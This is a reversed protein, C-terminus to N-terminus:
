RDDKVAEWYLPLAERAFDENEEAFFRYGEAAAEDEERRKAQALLEEIVQSRTAHDRTAREDAYKLLDEPISITAKAKAAPDRRQVRERTRRSSMRTPVM